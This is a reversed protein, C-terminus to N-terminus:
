SRGSRHCRLPLCASDSNDRWLALFVHRTLQRVIDYCCFSRSFGPSFVTERFNDDAGTMHDALGSGLTLQRSFVVRVSPWVKSPICDVAIENGLRGRSARTDQSTDRCVGSKGWCWPSLVVFRIQRTKQHVGQAPRTLAALHDDAKQGHSWKARATGRAWAKLPKGLRRSRLLPLVTAAIHNYRSEREGDRGTETGDRVM